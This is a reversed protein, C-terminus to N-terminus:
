HLTYNVVIQDYRWCARCGISGNPDRANRCSKNKDNLTYAQCDWDFAGRLQGDLKPLPAYVTSGGAWGPGLNEPAPENTCYASPRIILNRPDANIRNVADVGWTTAWCRTPAWFMIDPLRDAIEKWAQLYKQDFFDGSDHIRFYRGPHREPLYAPTVKEVGNKIQVKRKSGDLYYNAHQIAWVMTDVFTGDRLADKVWIYRMVQAVQVQGTAYQGGTAYCYNCIAQQLRVPRGTVSRVKRAVSKLKPTPIISQGGAAGPCSGGLEISGAPLSFSPAGMKSTWSLLSINRMTPSAPPNWPALTKGADTDPVYADELVIFVSNPDGGRGSKKQAETSPLKRNQVRYRKGMFHQTVIRRLWSTQTLEAFSQQMSAETVKGIFFAEGDSMRFEEPVAELGALGGEVTGTQASVAAPLSLTERQDKTESPDDQHELYPTIASM